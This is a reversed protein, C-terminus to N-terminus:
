EGESALVDHVQAREADTLDDLSELDRGVTAGCFAVGKVGPRNSSTLALRLERVTPTVGGPSPAVGDEAPVAGAETEDEVIEAEAIDDDPDAATSLHPSDDPDPLDGFEAVDRAPAPLQRDELVATLAAQGRGMEGMFEASKPVWKWLQHIVTKIWAIRPKTNWISDSRHATKSIAKHELIEKEEMYIVTSCGGGKLEAYAYAAVMRGRDAKVYDGARMLGTRTAGARVHIPRPNGDDHWGILDEEYVVGAVVNEVRGSRLMLEVEGKYDRMGVISGAFPVFHFTEGPELGLRACDLLAVRFSRVDKQAAAQMKEDGRRYASQAIRMFHEPRVHTPLVMAFDDISAAIAAEPGSQVKALATSTPNSM